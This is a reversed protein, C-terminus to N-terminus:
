QSLGLLKRRLAPWDDFHWSEPREIGIIPDSKTSMRQPPVEMGSVYRFVAVVPHLPDRETEDLVVGLRDSRLRVLAGPLFTGVVRLFARVLQADFEGPSNRLHDIAQSSPWKESGHPPCTVKDYFDCIAAMRAHTSLKDGSIGAPYGTGDPREHHNRCVDLVILPMDPLERLIDYGRVAHEQLLKTEDPTLRGRKDLLDPPLGAKGIDHLLGALGSDRIQEPYFQMEQALAIMWGCVAVSHMYTYEHQQRLRTISPLALPDRVLSATVGDVIEVLETTQLPEGRRVAAMSQAVTDCGASAVSRARNKEEQRSAPRSRLHLEKAKGFSPRQSAATAAPQGPGRWDGPVLGGKENAM